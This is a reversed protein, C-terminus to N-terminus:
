KSFEAHIDRMKITVTFYEATGCQEANSCQQPVLEPGAPGILAVTGRQDLVSILRKRQRATFEKGLERKKGNKEVWDHKLSYRLVLPLLAPFSGEAAGSSDFGQTIAVSVRKLTYLGPEKILLCFGKEGNQNRSKKLQIQGQSNIVRVPGLDATKVQGTCFKRLSARRVPASHVKSGELLMDIGRFLAEERIIAPLSFFLDANVCYAGDKNLQGPVHALTEETIFDAALRQTQALAHLSTQWGPFQENLVPVLCRRIRNRFFRIDNNSADERWPINKNHLYCLIDNRDFSLLPRIIRGRKDPMAALGEPGSGRLLRMLTTELLDTHTHAILIQVIKGQAELRRAESLLAAHRYLRAAAEIGMGKKRAVDAIKGHPVTIVRCPINQNKCFQVVHEADGGSEEPARIGHNVHLCHLVGGPHNRRMLGALAALMAMSDAGGSVALLYVM